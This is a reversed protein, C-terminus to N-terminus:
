LSMSRDREIMVAEARRVGARPRTRFGPIVMQIGGINYEIARAEPGRGIRAESEGVSRADERKLMSPGSVEGNLLWRGRYGVVSSLFQMLALILPMEIFWLLLEKDQKDMSKPSARTVQGAESEETEVATFSSSMSAGSRDMIDPHTPSPSAPATSQPILGAARAIDELSFDEPEQSPSLPIESNGAPELESREPPPRLPQTQGAPITEPAPASSPAVQQFTVPVADPIEAPVAFMNKAEMAWPLSSALEDLPRQFPYQKNFRILTVTTADRDKGFRLRKKLNDSWDTLTGKVKVTMHFQRGNHEFAFATHVVNAHSSQSEIPNEALEWKVTEFAWNRHKGPILQGTFMWRGAVLKSRHKEVGIGGGGFGFAQAHPNLHLTEKVQMERREGRIHKPGYHDTLRVPRWAPGVVGDPNDPVEELTVLVKASTLRCDPPQDFDLDMYIIGAPNGAPGLIGWQSEAFLFRCNVKVKGISGYGACASSSSLHDFREYDCRGYKRTKRLLM